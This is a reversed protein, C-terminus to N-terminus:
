RGMGPIGGLAGAFPGAAEQMAKAQGAELKRRADAHAAVILDALIDAEEPKLLSPDITLATLAGGGKLSLRVMGGGADGDVVTEALRTQAAALREQIAQAQKMMEDFDSM